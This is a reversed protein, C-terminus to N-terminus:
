ENYFHTKELMCEELLGPLSQLVLSTHSLFHFDGRYFGGVSGKNQQYGVLSKTNINVDTCVCMYTLNRETNISICMLILSIMNWLRNKNSLRNSVNKTTLIRLDLEHKRVAM